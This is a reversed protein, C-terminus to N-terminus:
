TARRYRLVYEAAEMRSQRPVQVYKSVESYSWALDPRTLTVLYGMSGVVGRAIQKRTFQDICTSM